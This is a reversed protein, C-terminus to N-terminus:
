IDGIKESLRKDGSWRKVQTPSWQGKEHSWDICWIRQKGVAVKGDVRSISGSELKKLYSNFHGLASVGPLVDPGVLGIKDVPAAGAAVGAWM